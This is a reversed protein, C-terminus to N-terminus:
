PAIREGNERFLLTISKGKVNVIAEYVTSTGKTVMEAKIIKARPYLGDVATKVAGPLASPSLSEEIELIEGAPSYILDRHTSREITELEFVTKGERTERLYANVRAKPYARNFAGLVAEPVEHRKLKVSEDAVAAVTLIASSIGVMMLLICKSVFAQLQNM